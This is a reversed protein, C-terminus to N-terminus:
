NISKDLYEVESKEPDIIAYRTVDNIAAEDLADIVNKYSAEELPKILLMLDNRKAGLRKQKERIIKRVGTQVNFNTAQLRQDQIAENWKGEYCYVKDNASLLLTLANSEGLDTADGEKPMYLKTVMPESLTTTFIFFTILLFGLDVLPTMDIKLSSASMRNKKRTSLPQLQLQAM